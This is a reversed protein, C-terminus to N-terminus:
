KEELKVGRSTQGPSSGPALKKGSKGKKKNASLAERVVGTNQKAGGAERETSRAGQMRGLPWYDLLLLVFPLTVLMPKAMLGLALFTFVALYSRFRPHEVYHVYAGLTLFWFFTSLVDKRESVWAVSEVHLPHLAFLAAVFASQWTAKTMRNFVFFLLLTNAIHFLLNTRHHWRPKLGFLEVDLMHSIWTVPHWNGAYGTTFAWRIAETTIGHRIHINETIYTPDDYNIFDCYNVQWFAILTAATLFLYIWIIPKMKLM